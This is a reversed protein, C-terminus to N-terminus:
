AAITLPSYPVSSWRLAWWGAPSLRGSPTPTRAETNERAEFVSKAFDMFGAADNVVIFPNLSSGRGTIAAQPLVKPSNDM